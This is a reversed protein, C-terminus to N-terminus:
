CRGTRKTIFVTEDDPLSEIVEEDEVEQGIVMRERGSTQPPKEPLSVADLAAEEMEAIVATSKVTPAQQQPPQPKNPSGTQQPQSIGKPLNAYRPPPTRQPMAKLKNRNHSTRKKRHSNGNM